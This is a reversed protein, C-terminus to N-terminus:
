TVFIAKSSARSSSFAVLIVPPQVSELPQWCSLSRLLTSSSSSSRKSHGVQDLAQRVEHVLKAPLGEHCLHECVLKNLEVLDSVGAAPRELVHKPMADALM